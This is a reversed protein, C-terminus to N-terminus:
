QKVYKLTSVSSSITKPSLTIKGRAEYEIQYVFGGNKTVPIGKSNVQQAKEIKAYFQNSYTPLNFEDTSGSYYGIFGPRNDFYSFLECTYSDHVVIKTESLSPTSCKYTGWWEENTAGYTSAAATVTLMFSAVFACVMCFLQKAKGKVKM